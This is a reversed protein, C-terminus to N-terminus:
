RGFFVQIVRDRWFRLPKGRKVAGRYRGESVGKYVTHVSLQLLEAVQHVTLIPPYRSGDIAALIEDASPAAALRSAQRQTQSAASSESPASDAEGHTNLFMM